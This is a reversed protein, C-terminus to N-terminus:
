VPVPFGTVPKLVPFQNPFHSVPLRNRGLVYRPSQLQIAPPPAFPPPAIMPWVRRRELGIVPGWGTQPRDVYGATACEFRDPPLTRRSHSRPLAVAMPECVVPRPIMVERRVGSSLRDVHRPTPTHFPTLPRTEPATACRDFRLRVSPRSRRGSAPHPLGCARRRVHGYSPPRCM